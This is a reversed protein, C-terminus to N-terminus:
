KNKNFKKVLELQKNLFEFAYLYPKDTTLDVDIDKLLDIVGKSSGSKLFNIYKKYYDKETLLKEVICLASIFGTAYKYVYFPRYFHPIRSWEYKLEEPLEINEGYYKKNLDYYYKNLDEYTKPRKNELEDHIWSEFESFMTQRYVTARFEDFLDFALCLKTKEDADKILSQYLLMENVTSAVEAVFIKYQSTAYPQNSNSLESHMTHGMEHALTYVSKLDDVYNMLIVSPCGFCGSSYAGTEKNKNPLYDICNSSFKKAMIKNYEEGLPKTATKITEIAEEISYKKQESIPMMIDYYAFKELGMTKRKEELIDHLVFLNKNIQNILRDYVKKDVEEYFLAEEKVSKFKSMQAFFIDKLIDNTYTSTLTRNVKGYGSMISKLAKERVLRSKNCMLKSYNAENVDYKKGDVEISDFEIEGTTLNDYCDSASSLFMSMKSFLISDHESIRHRKDRITKEIDRKYVKFRKDEAVEKLYSTKLKLMQPSIFATVQNIETSLFELKKSLNLYYTNSKDQDLSHFIYCALRDLRQDFEDSFKFLELLMEKNSLEGNYNKFKNYNKELYDFEENLMKEDKIYSSLDWKYKQEIEERNKM